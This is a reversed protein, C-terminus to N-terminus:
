RCSLGPCRLSLVLRDSGYTGDGRFETTVWLRHRRPWYSVNQVNNPATTWYRSSLVRRHPSLTAQFLCAKVRAGDTSATGGAMYSVPPAGEPCLGSVVARNGAFAVGQVRQLSTTWGEKPRVLGDRSKLLRSTRSSLPWRVIRGGPRVNYESTVLSDPTTSRDLSVGSFCPHTGTRSACPKGDAYRYYGIQPLAYSMGAASCAGTQADCGTTTSTTDTMAWFHRLDFVRIAAFGSSFLYLKHGYWALGDAHSAIRHFRRKTTDPEVLLAHNYTANAPGNTINVFSVRAATNRRNHWSVALVERWPCGRCTAYLAKPETVGDGSGTIGQPYWKFSTDDEESWCMGDYTTAVHLDTEHCIPRTAPGSAMLNELGVVHVQKSREVRARAAVGRVFSGADTLTMKALKRPPLSNGSRAAAHQPSILGSGLLAIAAVLAVLVTTRRRWRAHANM